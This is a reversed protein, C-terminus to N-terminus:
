FPIDDPYDNSPFLEQYVQNRNVESLIGSYKSWLSSYFEKVDSDSKIKKIQDNTLLAKFMSEIEFGNFETYWMLNFIADHTERFNRSNILKHVYIHKEIDEDFEITPYNVKFFSSLKNYFHFNNEMKFKWERLLFENFVSANLCSSFDNDSSIFYMDDFTKYTYDILLEWNIADGLSNNKGPPNGILIRNKAQEINENKTEILEAANFLEDILKDAALNMENIDSDISLMLEKFLLNYEKQIRILTECQPYDLAFRPFKLDVKNDKLLRLADSIKNSRNRYYEDKIQDTILLHIENTNILALLKKLEKIDDQSYHYFSLYINTDIFLYM